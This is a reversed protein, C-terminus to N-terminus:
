SGREDKVLGKLAELRPDTWEHRCNCTGTNLNTGCEPCLGRCDDRCLPKMPLVLYLQEQVLEDLDIQDDRYYADDLDGEGVEHEGAPEVAESQPHYRVDFSADVPLRLPEVCRGCSLELVTRVRGILRFLAKDKEVDFGLELPAVVRYSEGEQPVDSPAITYDFRQHPHRIHTLDLQM